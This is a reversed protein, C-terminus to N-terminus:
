LVCADWRDIAGGGGPRYYADVLGADETTYEGSVGFVGADFGVGVRDKSLGYLRLNVTADDVIRDFLRAGGDLRSVSQGTASDRGHIFAEAAALNEPDRLDLKADLIARGGESAGGTLKRNKLRDVFNRLDKGKFDKINQEIDGMGTIDLQGTVRLYKERGDRDYTLAIRLKGQGSAALSFLDAQKGPLDPGEAEGGGTFEFYYTKDGYDPSDPDTNTTAGVSGGLNGEAGTGGVTGKVRVELGGQITTEDHDPLEIDADDDTFPLNPRPDAIAIVKRRVDDIFKDAEKESAFTWARAYAANGTVKAEAGGKAEVNGAEVGAKPAFNLGAKANGKIQVKVSGDARVEKVGEVGAGLEFVAVRVAGSIGRVSSSRVCESLPPLNGATAEPGSEAACAFGGIKCVLTQAQNGIHSGLPSVVLAGIIAAVVLLVGMYDAATQGRSSRLPAIARV